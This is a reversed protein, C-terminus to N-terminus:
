ENPAPDQTWKPIENPNNKSSITLCPTADRRVSIHLFLLPYSPIQKAKQMNTQKKVGSFHPKQQTWKSDATAMNKQDPGHCIFNKALIFACMSPPIPWKPPHNPKKNIQLPTKNHKNGPTQERTNPEPADRMHSKRPSSPVCVLFFSPLPLTIQIKIYASYPANTNMKLNRKPQKQEFDRSM